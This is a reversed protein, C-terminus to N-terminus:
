DMEAAPLGHLRTNKIAIARIRDNRIAHFARNMESWDGAEAARFADSLLSLDKAERVRAPSDAAELLANPDANGNSLAILFAHRQQSWEDNKDAKEIQHISVPQPNALREPSSTSCGGLAVTSAILLTTIAGFNTKKM